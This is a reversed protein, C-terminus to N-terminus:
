QATLKLIAARVREQYEAWIEESFEQIDKENHTEPRFAVGATFRRKGIRMILKFCTAGEKTFKNLIASQLGFATAYDGLELVADKNGRQFHRSFDPKFDPDSM